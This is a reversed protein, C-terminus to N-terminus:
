GSIPQKQDLGYFDFKINNNNKILKNLFDRKKGKKLTGRHVGHSM